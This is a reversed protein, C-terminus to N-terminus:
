RPESKMVFCDIAMRRLELCANSASDETFNVFRARYIKRDGRQVTMAVHEHNELLGTAKKRAAAMRTQAEDVSGYAGIQIEFGKGAPAAAFRPAEPIPGKLHSPADAANARAFVADSLTRRKGGTGSDLAQAQSDLTSPSRPQQTDGTNAPSAFATHVEVPAASASPPAPANDRALLQEIGPSLPAHPQPEAPQAPTTMAERLAHLDLRPPAMGAQVPAPLSPVQAQAPPEEAGAPPVEITTTSVVRTAPVANVRAIVAAIQDQKPTKQASQARAPQPSAKLKPGSIAAAKPMGTTDTKWPAQPAEAADETDAAAVTQPEPGREGPMASIGADVQQQAPTKRRAILVVNPKRTKQTSAKQLARYLIMRMHANRAAASAGGFVVAVVHKSDTHVSSVVNFGSAKTYGTKIGDMGPFGHMLTNHTRYTKGRYDFSKISFYRYYQPLEDQLRLALTLMDRATSIQRNDPLGSANYFTTGRMGIEAATENMMRVFGAESGGIHEALAVAVDNASKTVLAKIADGVQIEEGPDLDLKSPAVGAARESIRVPTSLTLRGREIERFTLFITMIKTLSAPHRPADAFQEHLVEGTNADIAMAAGRVEAHAAPGRVAILGLTLGAIFLAKATIRTLADRLM